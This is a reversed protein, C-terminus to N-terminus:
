QGGNTTIGTELEAPAKSIEAATPSNYFCYLTMEICTYAKGSKAKKKGIISNEFAGLKGRNHERTKGIISM